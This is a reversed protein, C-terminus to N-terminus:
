SRERGPLSGCSSKRSRRRARRSSAQACTAVFAARHAVPDVGVTSYSGGTEDCVTAEPLWHHDAPASPRETGSPPIVELEAGDVTSSNLEQCVSVACRTEPDCIASSATALPSEVVYSPSAGLVSSLV